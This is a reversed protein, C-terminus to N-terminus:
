VFELNKRNNKGFDLNILGFTIMLIIPSMIIIVNENNMRSLGVYLIGLSAIAMIYTYMLYNLRSLQEAYFSLLLVLGIALMGVWLYDISAVTIFYLLSFVFVKYMDKVFFKEVLGSYLIKGSVILAFLILVLKSHEAGVFSPLINRFYFIGMCSSAYVFILKKPNEMYNNTINLIPLKAFLSLILIFILSSAAYPPIAIFLYHLLDDIHNGLNGGNKKINLLVSVFFFQITALVCWKLLERKFHREESHNLFCYAIFALELLVIWTIFEVQLVSLIVILKFVNFVVSNGRNSIIGDVYFLTFVLSFVLAELPLAPVLGLIEGKFFLGLLSIDVVISFLLGMYKNICKGFMQILGLILMFIFVVMEFKM